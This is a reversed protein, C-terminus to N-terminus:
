YNMQYIFTLSWRGTQAPVAPSPQTPVGPARPPSPGWRFGRGLSGEARVGGPGGRHGAPGPRAVKGGGPLPRPARPCCPVARGRRCSWPASGVAAGAVASRCRAAWAAAPRAPGGRGGSGLTGLHCMGDRGHCWPWCRHQCPRPEKHCPAPGTGGWGQRWETRISPGPCPESPATRLVHWHNGAFRRSPLLHSGRAGSRATLRPPRHPWAPGPWCSLMGPAAPLLLQGPLALPQAWRLTLAASPSPPVPPVARAPDQGLARRHCLGTSAWVKDPQEWGPVPHCRAGVPTGCAAGRGRPVSSPSAAGARGPVGGGHVATGPIGSSFPDRLPRPMIAAVRTGAPAGRAACWAATARRAGAGWGPRHRPAAGAGLQGGSGGWRRARGCAGLSAAARCLPQAPPVRAPGLPVPPSLPSLGLRLGALGRHWCCSPHPSIKPCLSVKTPHPVVPSAITAVAGGGAGWSLASPARVACSRPRPLSTSRPVGLPFRTATVSPDPAHCRAPPCGAGAGLPAAAGGRRVARTPRPPAPCPDGCGGGPRM